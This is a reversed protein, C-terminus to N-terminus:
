FTSGEISKAKKKVEAAINTVEGYSTITRHANTIGALSITMIPFQKISGDRAHAIIYGRTLDEDDYLSRVRKDFESTIYDAVAQATEPSTVLLFDDGGEHGVFVDADGKQKAAEKFIDATLKIALDGKAIGYKDNFAKFNDLDCYIVMFKINQKIRNEIVEHIVINGPLKTLPNANEAREKMKILEETMYNFTNGLEELEDETKIDTRVNLDGEAIIKTVKNLIKIPGIVTKSLFYGLLINALIVLITAFIIPQYVQSLAESISALPLTLKAVYNLAGTQENGLGIYMYIKQRVKDVSSTIWKNQAALEKLLETKNSDKYSVTEGPTLGESSFIIKGDTDFLTIDKAMDTDILDKIGTSIALAMDQPNQRVIAELNNKAIMTSLGSRYANFRNLQAMQNNLQIFTFIGIFIVSSVVMLATIRNQLTLKMVSM